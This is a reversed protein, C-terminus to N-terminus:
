ILSSWDPAMMIIASMEENAGRRLARVILLFM